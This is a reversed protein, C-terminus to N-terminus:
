DNLAELLARIDNRNFRWDGTVDVPDESGLQDLVFRVIDSLSVHDDPGIAYADRLVESPVITDINAIAHWGPDYDNAYNDMAVIVLSSAGKPLTWGPPFSYLVQGTTDQPQRIRVMGGIIQGYQDGYYVDYTYIRENDPPGWHVVGSLKGPLPDVDTIGSTAPADLNGIGYDYKPYFIRGREGTMLDYVPIEVYESSTHGYRDVLHLYLKEGPFLTFDPIEFVTQDAPILGVVRFYDSSYVHVPVIKFFSINEGFGAADISMELNLWNSRPHRDIATVNPFDLGGELWRRYFPVEDEEGNTIAFLELYMNGSIDFQDFDIYYREFEPDFEVALSERYEGTADTLYAHFSDAMSYWDNWYIKGSLKGNSIELDLDNPYIEIDREVFIEHISENDGYWAVISSKSLDYESDASLDYFMEPYGEFEYLTYHEHRYTNLELEVDNEDKVLLDFDQPAGYLYLKFKVMGLEFDWTTVASSADMRNSDISYVDLRYSGRPMEDVGYIVVLDGIERDLTREDIVAGSEQKLVVNVKDFQGPPLAIMAEFGTGKQEVEVYEVVPPPSDMALMPLPDFDPISLLDVHYDHNRIGMVGNGLLNYTVPFDSFSYYNIGATWVRTSTVLFRRNYGAYVKEVGTKSGEYERFEVHYNNYYNAGGTIFVKGDGDIALVSDFGVSFDKMGHFDTLEVPLPDGNSFGFISGYTSWGYVKGQSTVAISARAVSSTYIRDVDSLDIKTAHYLDNYNNWVGLSDSYRSGWSYVDGNLTLALAFDSGGAIQKVDGLPQGDSDVVRKPQLDTSNGNPNGSDEGWGALAVNGWTWVENNETLAMALSAGASIATVKEDNEGIVVRQPTLIAGPCASTFVDYGHVCGWQWVHGDEDLALVFAYGAAVDTIKPLGNVPAPFRRPNGTENNGLQGFLNSGWALVTGNELLIYTNEQESEVKRISSGDLYVPGAGGAAQVSEAYATEANSGILGQFPLLTLIL